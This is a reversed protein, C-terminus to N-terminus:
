MVIIMHNVNTYSIQYFVRGYRHFIFNIQYPKVESILCLQIAIAIQIDTNLPLLYKIAKKFNAVKLTKSCYTSFQLRAHFNFTSHVFIQSYNFSIQYGMAVRRLNRTAIAIYQLIGSKHAYIFIRYQVNQVLQVKDGWRCPLQKEDNWRCPLQNLSSTVKKRTAVDCSISICYSSKGAVM